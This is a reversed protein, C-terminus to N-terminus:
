WDWYEYPEKESLTLLQNFCSKVKEVGEDTKIWHAIDEKTEFYGITMSTTGGSWLDCKKQPSLVVGTLEFASSEASRNKKRKLILRNDGYQMDAYKNGNHIFRAILNDIFDAMTVLM